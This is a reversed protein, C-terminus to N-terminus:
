KQYKEFFENIWTEIEEIPFDDHYEKNAQEMVYIILENKM